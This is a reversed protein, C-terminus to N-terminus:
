ASFVEYFARSQLCIQTWDRVAHAGRTQVADWVGRASLRRGRQIKHTTYFFNFPKEFSIHFQKFLFISPKLKGQKM